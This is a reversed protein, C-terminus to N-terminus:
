ELEVGVVVVETFGDVGIVVVPKDNNAAIHEVTVASHTFIKFDPDQTAEQFIDRWNELDKSSPIYNENGVKVLTIGGVHDPIVEIEVDEDVLSEQNKVKTRLNELYQVTPNAKKSKIITLSM